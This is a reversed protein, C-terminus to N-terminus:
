VLSMCMLCVPFHVSNDAPTISLLILWPYYCPPHIRRRSSRRSLSCQLTIKQRRRSVASGRQEARAKCSEAGSGENGAPTRPVSPHCIFSLPSPGRPPLGVRFAATVETCTQMDADLSHSRLPFFIPPLM